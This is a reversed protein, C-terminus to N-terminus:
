KFFSAVTKIPLFMRAPQQQLPIFGCHAYFAEASKDKTDVVVAMAAIQTAATLSRWLADMLLCQGM